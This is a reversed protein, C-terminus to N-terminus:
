RSKGSNVDSREQSLRAVASSNDATSSSSAASQTHGQTKQILQRIAEPYNLVHAPNTEAGNELLVEVIKLKTEQPMRRDWVVAVLPTLGQANKVNVKAGAATLAEVVEFHGKQCALHLPTIGNDKETLGRGKGPVLHGDATVTDYKTTKIDFALAVNAKAGNQLLFNVMEIHGLEAAHHLATRGDLNSSSGVELGKSLLFQLMGLHGARSAVMVLNEDMMRGRTLVDAGKDLLLQAVQFNNYQVAMYLPTIGDIDKADVEAGKDLMQQAKEFLGLAAALHLPTHGVIDRAHVNYNPHHIMNLFMYNLLRLDEQKASDIFREGDGCTVDAYLFHGESILKLVQAKDKELSKEKKIMEFFMEVDDDQSFLGKLEQSSEGNFGRHYGLSDHLKGLAKEHGATLLKGYLEQLEEKTFNNLVDSDIEISQVLEEMNEPLPM